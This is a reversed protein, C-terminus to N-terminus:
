LAHSFYKVFESLFCTLSTFCTHSFSGRVLQIRRTRPNLLIFRPRPRDSLKVRRYNDSHM